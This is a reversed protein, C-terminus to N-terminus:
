FNLFSYSLLIQFSEFSVPVDNKKTLSTVPRDINEFNSISACKQSYKVNPCLLNLSSRSGSM